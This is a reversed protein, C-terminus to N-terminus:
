LSDRLRGIGNAAPARDRRGPTLRLSEGFRRWPCRQWGRRAAPDGARVANKRTEGVPLLSRFHGGVLHLAPFSSPPAWCGTLLSSVPISIARLRGSVQTIAEDGWVREDRRKVPVAGARLLSLSCEKTAEITHSTQSRAPQLVKALDAPCRSPLHGKRLSGSNLSQAQVALGPNVTKQAGSLLPTPPPVHHTESTSAPSSCPGARAERM